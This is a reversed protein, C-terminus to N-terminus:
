QMAAQMKVLNEILREFAAECDQPDEFRISRTAQPDLYRVELTTPGKRKISTVHDLNIIEDPGLRLWM